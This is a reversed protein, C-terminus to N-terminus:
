KNSQKTKTLIYSVPEFDFKKYFKMASENFYSVFMIMREINNEEFWAMSRNMFLEGIGQSRYPELIFLSDLEGVNQKSITSVSYGVYTQDAIDIAVLIQIKGGDKVKEKLEKARQQFTKNTAAKESLSTHYDRLGEWLSKILVIESLDCEIISISM